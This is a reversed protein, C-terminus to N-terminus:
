DVFLFENSNLLVRCLAPLSRERVFEVFERLEDTNPDRSWVLRVAHKVQTEQSKDQLSEVEHEVRRALAQSSHLVFANNYLALAQLSSVSFGRVPALLGLDPFDLLEMFPDPIGRWVFRYISRRGAAPSDWDFDSYNLTPTVQPGKSQSFYHVGPGGMALNLSSSVALAFDHYSEADLRQRNQRWLWRNDGDRRAPEERHQSSQRYTKSTVILRHLQKLSGQADDRFWVALWELLEPHSPTGGMQGFDSPTDCLGRGFHYHWVRNVISRYTLVNDHHALWDALQARREAENNPDKLVFRSPLHTLASLAGPAAVEGPKDFDGRDLIHVVKSVPITHSQLQGEGAPVQVAAAASYIMSQPPLERLSTTAATRLAYSAISIRQEESRVEEEIALAAVVESPLAEARAAVDETASLRFAGILHGAGHLQRLLIVLRAGAPVVMPKEFEFVATHSQGVVPYIGWATEVDGDIARDVGWGEQNFDATARRIVVPFSQSGDKEFLRVELESLHLNGNEHRGPGRLPLSEHPLVELRLATIQAMTTTASVVYTDREPLAETALVINDEKRSLTSGESAVFTDYSLHRWAAGTGREALWTAVLPGNEETLVVAAEHKRASEQLAIWHRRARLTELNEDYAVNGKLIGAFDAQLAYYDEQSIPDFKHAHCRACNATTSAFAGMTQTVLDDRDLYDFTIPATSFASLDFTGAGLFGLAPMLDPEDPFFYDAALQERIFRPWPTDRNFSAIVYDRFRWAHDRAVDHEFGHSDAFHITDLWHRAWREGYRPSELLRDVVREYARSDADAAFMDVEEPTPPLGVLDFTVRRLLTSRDAEPSATVEERRLRDLVFADVPHESGDGPVAPRQLPKLSWWELPNRRRETGPEVKREDYAGAAIWRTLVGIEDDSLKEEPMKLDPDTHRIAQVLLSSDPDGPQIAAGRSGGIEWGSRWDLALGGEMTGSTHSHCEFCRKRLLPEVQEQFFVREDNARLPESTVVIGGVLLSCLLCAHTVVCPSRPRQSTNVVPM